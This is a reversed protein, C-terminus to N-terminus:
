PTSKAPQRTWGRSAGARPSITRWAWWGSETRRGPSSSFSARGRCSGFSRCPRSTSLQCGTLRSAPSDPRGRSQLQGLDTRRDQGATEAFHRRRQRAGVGRAGWSPRQRNSGPSAGPPLAAQPWGTIRPAFENFDPTSTLTRLDSGDPRCAYLDWDGAPSRAGFAIWGKQRVEARLQAVAPDPASAVNSASGLLAALVGALGTQLATALSARCRKPGPLTRGEEIERTTATHFM